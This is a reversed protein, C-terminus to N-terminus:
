ESQVLAPTFQTAALYWQGNHKIYTDTYRSELRKRKPNRIEHFYHGTIIATDDYLRVKVNETWELHHGEPRHRVMELVQAKNFVLGEEFTLSYDEALQREVTAV